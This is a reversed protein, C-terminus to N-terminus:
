VQLVLLRMVILDKPCVAYKERDPILRLFISDTQYYLCIKPKQKRANWYFFDAIKQM